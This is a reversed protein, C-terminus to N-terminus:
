SWRISTTAFPNAGTPSSQTFAALGGTFVRAVREIADQEYTPVPRGPKDPTTDPALVLSGNPHLKFVGISFLQLLERAYNENATRGTNPNPKNNNVMDLYNGMAPNLTIEELLTRFNSFANRGLLDVYVSMGPGDYIDRSSVVLIQSLAFAVRQRLQDTGNLANMFFRTRFAYVRAPDYTNSAANVFDLYTSQPEALQADIFGGYGASLVQDVLAQTPGMSAQELFRRAEAQTTPVTPAPNPPPPQPSSSPVARYHGRIEGSPYNVTHVNVYLRGTKLATIQDGVSLGGTPEFSWTVDAFTGLPLSFVPPATGSPDAPGHVHVAIEDSTLGSFDLSLEASAEDAALLLTATGTATTVAGGEPLLTTVFLTAAPAPPPHSAVAWAPATTGGTLSAQSLRTDGNMLWLETQGLRVHRWLIDAKGDGSVDAALGVRWDPDPMPPLAADRVLSVWDMMWLRNDGLQGHRWLVDCKRDGDFDAVDAVTWALDALPPLSGTSAVTSGDVLWVLNEGSEANRWLVDARGDGNLDGVGAVRWALDPLPTMTLPAGRVGGVVPWLMNEGTAEHRWLIDAQGDGTFDSAGAVRWDTDGLAPLAVVRTIAFGNMVWLRNEGSRAHRWLIDARRDGTFDAAAQVQWNRDAERRITKRSAIGTRKMLWVHYSGTSENRWLVDAKGDRNFDSRQAAAAPLALTLAAAVIAATRRLSM